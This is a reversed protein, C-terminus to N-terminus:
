DWFDNIKQFSSGETVFREVKKYSNHYLFKIGNEKADKKLKNLVEKFTKSKGFRYYDDFMIFAVKEAIGLKKIALLTEIDKNIAEKLDRPSYHFCKAEACMLFPGDSVEPTIILDVKPFIRNKKELDNQLEKEKMKDKFQYDEFNNSNLNKDFHMQIDSLNDALQKYFLRALHVMMDSENWFLWHAEKAEDINTLSKSYKWAKDDYTKCLEEWAKEMLEEIKNADMKKIEKRGKIKVCKVTNTM